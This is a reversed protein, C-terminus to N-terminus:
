SRYELEQSLLQQWRQALLSRADGVGEDDPAPAARTQLSVEDHLLDRVARYFESKYTGQFM